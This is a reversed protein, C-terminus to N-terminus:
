LCLKNSRDQLVIAAAQDGYLPEDMHPVDIHVRYDEEMWFSPHQYQSNGVVYVAREPHVFDKLSISTDTKQEVAIYSIGKLFHIRSPDHLIGVTVGYTSRLARYHYNTLQKNHLTSEPCPYFGLVFVDKSNQVWM